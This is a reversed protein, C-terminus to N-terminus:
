TAPMSILESSICLEEAYSGLPDVEDEEVLGPRDNNAEGLGVFRDVVDEGPAPLSNMADSPRLRDTTKEGRGTRDNSDEGPRLCDKADGGPSPRDNLDDGPGLWDKM